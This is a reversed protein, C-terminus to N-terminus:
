ENHEGYIPLTQKPIHRFYLDLLTACSHFHAPVELAEERIGRLTKETIKLEKAMEEMTVGSEWLRKIIIPYDLQLM